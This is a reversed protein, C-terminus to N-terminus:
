LILENMKAVFSWFVVGFAYPVLFSMAMKLPPPARSRVVDGHLPYYRVLYCPGWSPCDGLGGFWPGGQGLPWTLMTEIVLSIM